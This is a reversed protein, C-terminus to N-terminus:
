TRKKAERIIQCEWEDLDKQAMTQRERDWILSAIQIMDELTYITYKYFSGVLSWRGGYAILGQNIERQQLSTAFGKRLGHYRWRQQELFQMDRILATWRKKTEQLTATFLFPNQKNAKERKLRFHYWEFILRIPKLPSTNTGLLLRTTVGYGKTKSNRLRLELALLNKINKTYKQSKFKRDSANKWIWDIDSLKIGYDSWATDENSLQEAGRLGMTLAMLIIVIFEYWGKQNENLTEIDHIIGEQVLLKKDWHDLEDSVIHERITYSIIIRVREVTIPLTDSGKGKNQAKCFKVAAHLEPLSHYEQIVGCLQATYDVGRLKGRITEYCNPKQRVVACDVIYVQLLWPDTPFTWVRRDPIGLRRLTRWFERFYQLYRDHSSDKVGGRKM